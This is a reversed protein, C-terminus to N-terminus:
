PRDKLRYVFRLGSWVESVACVQNDVLGAALGIARIRNEDLGTAAGSSRKPWAIWLGGAPQLRKAQGGFRKALESNRTTFFLIVDQRQERPGCRQVAKPLPALWEELGDPGNVVSLRSGPEIGLKKPLHTGSYGAM